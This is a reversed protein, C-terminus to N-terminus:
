KIVPFHNFCHVSYWKTMLQILLDQHVEPVIFSDHCCLCPICQKAFDHLIFVAINSDIRMLWMGADTGFFKAIPKHRNIALDYVDRLSQGTLKKNERFAEYLQIADLLSEGTKREGSHTKTNMANACASIAARRNRANIATNIMKKALLRQLKTTNKGWLRYPDDQYPLNQLHYLMRTHMGSYDKEVSPCGNFLITQRELKRLSQHGHRYTYIRGHYDWSETFVAYHVPRIRKWEDSFKKDDASYVRYTIQYQNNVRNLLDLWDHTQRAIHYAPLEDLDFPIPTKEEGREYLEVYKEPVQPDFENPDRDEFKRLKLTPCLRSMKGKGSKSRREWFFGKEVLRDIISLRIVSFDANGRNRVNAITTNRTMAMKAAHMIQQMEKIREKRKRSTKPLSPLVYNKFLKNAQKRTKRTAKTTDDIFVPPLDYLVDLPVDQPSVKLKDINTKLEALYKKRRRETAKAVSQPKKRKKTM